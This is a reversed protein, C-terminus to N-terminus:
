TPINLRNCFACRGCFFSIHFVVQFIEFSTTFNSSYINKHLNVREGGWTRDSSRSKFFLYTQGWFPWSGSYICNRRRIRQEAVFFQARLKLDSVWQYKKGWHNKVREGRETDFIVPPVGFPVRRCFNLRISMQFWIKAMKCKIYSMQFEVNLWYVLPGICWHVLSGISWHVFPCISFHVFPCISM